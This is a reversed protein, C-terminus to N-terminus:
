WTTLHRVDAVRQKTQGLMALAPVVPAINNPVCGQSRERRKEHLTAGEEVVLTPHVLLAFGIVGVHEKPDILDGTVLLGAVQEIQDRRM